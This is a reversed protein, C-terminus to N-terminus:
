IVVHARKIAKSTGMGPELFSEGTEPDLLERGRRYVGCTDILKMKRNRYTYDVSVADTTIFLFNLNRGISGNGFFLMCLDLFAPFFFKRPRTTTGSDYNTILRPQGLLANILSSKGSNPVGVVAIKLPRETLDAERKLGMIQDRLVSAGDWKKQDEVAGPLMRRLADVGGIQAAKEYTQKNLIHQLVPDSFDYKGGGPLGSSALIGPHRSFYQLSRRQEATLHPYKWQADLELLEEETEPESGPPPSAYDYDPEKTAEPDPRVSDYPRIATQSQVPRRWRDATVDEDGEEADAFEQEDGLADDDLPSTLSNSRSDAVEDRFGSPLAEPRIDNFSDGLGSVSVSQLRGEGGQGEGQTDQPPHHNLELVLRDYLYDMGENHMASIPIPDGLNLDYCDAAWDGVYGGDAKNAVLIISKKKNKGDPSPSPSSPPLGSEFASSSSSSASASAATTGSGVDARRGAAERGGFGLHEHESNFTLDLTKAVEEDAFLMEKAVQMDLPTVGKKADILFLIVDADLLAKRTQARM